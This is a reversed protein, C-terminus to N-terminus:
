QTEKVTNWGIVMGLALAAPVAVYLATHPGYRWAATYGVAFGVPLCLALTAAIQRTM